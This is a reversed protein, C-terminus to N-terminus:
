VSSAMSVQRFYQKLNALTFNSVLQLNDADMGYYRRAMAASQIEEIIPQRLAPNFMLTMADQISVLPMKQSWSQFLVMETPMARADREEVDAILQPTTMCEGIELLEDESLSSIWDAHDIWSDIIELDANHIRVLEPVLFEIEEATAMNLLDNASQAIRSRLQSLRDVVAKYQGRLQFTLVLAQEIAWCCELRRLRAAASLDSLLQPNRYDALANSLMSEANALTQNRITLDDCALATQILQNAELFQGYAKILIVRHQEFKVDQAVDRIQARIEQGQNGILKELDLFGEKMETGLQKVDERLQMIQWLSAASLAVGSVVGVGLLAQSTQLIGVSNQLGFVAAKVVNLESYTKQFGQHIQASQAALAGGALVQGVKLVGLESYTKQFGQHMQASQAAGIVLSTVVQMPALLPSAGASTAIGIAHGVFKKTVADRAMGILHGTAQSKVVEYAGSALGAQILAPFVFSMVM